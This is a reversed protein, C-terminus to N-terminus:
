HVKGRIWHIQVNTEYCDYQQTERKLTSFWKYLIGARRYRQFTKACCCSQLRIVRTLLCLAAESVCGLLPKTDMNLPQRSSKRRATQQQLWMKVTTTFVSSANLAACRKVTQRLHHLCKPLVGFLLLRCLLSPQGSPLRVCAAVTLNQWINDVAASQM